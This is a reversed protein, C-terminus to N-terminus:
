LLPRKESLFPKIRWNQSSKGPSAAFRESNEVHQFYLLLYLFHWAIKKEPLFIRKEANKEMFSAIKLEFHAKVQWVQSSKGPFAGFM